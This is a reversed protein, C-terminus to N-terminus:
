RAHNMRNSRVPGIRLGHDGLNDAANGVYEGLVRRRNGAVRVASGFGV